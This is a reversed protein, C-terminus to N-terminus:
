RLLDITQRRMQRGADYINLNAEYSRSAQRMNSMEIISSVNSMKVFGDGDAAPHTPDYRLQFETMDRGVAAIAVTSIGTDRDVMEEFTITKRRYPDAGATDGTSGANAVNEAVVKMREGQARMGSASVIAISNLPDM